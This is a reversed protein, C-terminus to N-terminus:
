PLIETQPQTEIAGDLMHLVRTAYGAAAENHTVMVVAVQQAQALEKLDKFVLEGNHKDLNGTPEDALLVTPRNILARCLAARQREGGSVQSPFRDALRSLGLRALLERARAAAGAAEDRIWAPMLINELVTFEPLLSDFQFVFGLRQNRLAARGEETMAATAKGSFRVDGQSPADMLGLINLLTSKGCGSPGLIVLFEGAEVAFDLGRLVQVEAAGAGYTKHLGEASLVADAM